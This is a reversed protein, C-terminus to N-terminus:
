DFYFDAAPADGPMWEPWPERPVGARALFREVEHESLTGKERAATVLVEIGNWVLPDAFRRDLATKLEKVWGSRDEIGLAEAARSITARWSMDIGTSSSLGKFLPTWRREVATPALALLAAAEAKYLNTSFVRDWAEPSVGEPLSVPGDSVLAGFPLQGQAGGPLAEDLRSIPRPHLRFQWLLLATTAERYLHLTAEDPPLATM